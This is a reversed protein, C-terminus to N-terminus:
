NLFDSARDFQTLTTWVGDPGASIRVCGDIATIFVKAGLKRLNKYVQLSALRDHMAAAVQPNVTKIFSKSSSTDSGHHGMKLVDAALAAGYKELLEAERPSYLDGMFLMSAEGYVFKLVLSRNNIFQTSNSPYGEYYAINPEPNFVQVAVSGGFSFRDGEELTRIEVGAKRAAGVLAAYPGTPYVLESMYLRGVPLSGLVGALGGIHDVHPHTALVIDLSRIGLAELYGLVQDQCRPSGGDVLMTKGDPSILLTSDGSKEDESSEEDLSLKFFVATLKGREPAQRLVQDSRDAPAPPPETSQAALCSAGLLAALVIAFAKRIM